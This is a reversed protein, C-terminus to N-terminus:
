NSVGPPSSGPTQHERKRNFPDWSLTQLLLATDFDSCGTDDQRFHVAAELSAELPTGLSATQTVDLQVFPDRHAEGPPPGKGGSELAELM